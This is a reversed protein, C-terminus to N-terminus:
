ANECRSNGSGRRVDRLRQPRNRRERCRGPKWGTRWDIAKRLAGGRSICNRVRRKTRGRKWVGGSEPARLSRVCRLPSGQRSRECTGCIERHGRPVVRAHDGRPSPSPGNGVIMYRIGPYRARLLSTARIVTDIGKYQQKLVAVSLLVPSDEAITLKRRADQKSTLLAVDFSERNVSPPILGIRDPPVGLRMLLVRSYGSITIVRDAQRFMWRKMRRWRSTTIEMGYAFIILRAGLLRAAILAPISTQIQEAIVVGYRRERIVHIITSVILPFIAMKGSHLLTSYGGTSVVRFRRDHEVSKTLRTDGHSIVVLDDPPVSAFTRAIYNAIGGVMRPYDRAILLIARAM